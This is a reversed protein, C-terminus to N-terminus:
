KLIVFKGIVPLPRMRGNVVNLIGLVLFVLSAIGVAFGLFVGIFPLISSVISGGVSCLFLLLGQNTHYMVFPSKKHDGTLLPIFFIIYAIIAMGKYQEADQPDAQLEGEQTEIKIPSASKGAASAGCAPCFKVGDDM